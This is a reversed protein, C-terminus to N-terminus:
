RRRRSAIWRVSPRRMGFGQLLRAFRSPPRIVPPPGFTEGAPLSIRFLESPMPVDFEIDVIEVVMFDIDEARAVVRLALEHRPDVVLEYSDAGPTIGPAPDASGIADIVVVDRGDRREARESRVTLAALLEDAHFLHWEPHQTAPPHADPDHENSIAHVSPAYSWWLPPDVVNVATGYGHTDVEYRWRSTGDLWLRAEQVAVDPEITQTDSTPDRRSTAPDRRLTSIAVTGKPRTAAWRQLARLGVPHVFSRRIRARLTRYQPPRGAEAHNRSTV